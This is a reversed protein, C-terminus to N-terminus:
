KTLNCVLDHFMPHFRYVSGDVGITIDPDGMKLILTALAASVLHAARRTISECVYRVDVCDQDSANPIGIDTLIDRTIQISETPESEIESVFKTFFQNPTKLETSLKGGFLLGNIALKVLVLRVLEGLYMGSLMKEFLQNGPNISTHDIERDYSTRITELSGYDGFAGWEINIIVKEDDTKGPKDFFEANQVREVYCANSGTGLIVGIKCNHYKWACSMLTGTTDNLIACVLIKIDQLNLLFFNVRMVLRELKSVNRRRIADELLEVVNKDVVGECNFGKTWKILLGKTLGIQQCPFSFTFGLPLVEDQINLENAFEALCKAIHDFLEVGSGLMLGQPIAFIKSEFEYDDEGKLHILLVRFNTGGLDLALVKGRETGNPLDQVFTVFCKTEASRHTSKKLGKKIEREFTIMVEQLMKNSMVLEPDITNRVKVSVEPLKSM